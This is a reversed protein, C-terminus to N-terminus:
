FLLVRIHIRVYLPAALSDLELRYEDAVAGPTLRGPMASWLNMGVL